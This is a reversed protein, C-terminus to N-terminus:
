ALLFEQIENDLSKTFDILGTNCHDIGKSLVHINLM